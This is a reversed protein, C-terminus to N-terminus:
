HVRGQAEEIRRELAKLQIRSGTFWGEPWGVGQALMRDFIAAQDYRKSGWGALYQLRMNRDRNIQAYDLWHALDAPRGAYTALLEIGSDIGVSALSRRLAPSASLREQLRDVALTDGDRMGVLVLDYGEGNVTNAFIASNPFATMFTGIVSRASEETSEYLQGWATVVGGPKLRDKALRWFEETYLAASGRTWPDLPDSTIGDFLRDTNRLYHRGDEVVLEVRPHRVVGENWPSFWKDAVRTVLPEIEAVTVRGVAEDLALAGATVGAGLGIVLFDDRGEPLLSTLHGLMRQLRMDRPYSSAQVKGSNHYTLAGNPERSVAVSATVGEQAYVVDVGEGWDPLYHGAAIVQAPIPPVASLSVAGFALCLAGAGVVTLRSPAALLVATLAALLSLLVLAQQTVASGFLPVLVLTAGLAGAIAGLTNAAYLRSVPRGPDVTTSTKSDADVLIALALPFSAGWLITAPLMAWASRVLDAPLRLAENVPWYPLDQTVAYAAWAIAPALLAQCLALAYAPTRLRKGLAAGLSTGLGLGFLFVALILAFGYVTAGIFLALQRTWIVQCALATAGSLFLIAGLGLTRPNSVNTSVSNAESASAKGTEDWREGRALWLAVGCVGLNIAVAVATAVQVDHFRLLYFGALVTGLAAGAINGGYFWGLRAMGPRSVAVWRAIAPLTAGMLMTPPLLFLAALVARLAVAGPGPEALGPLGVRLVPLLLLLLVAFVAIGFELLAYVRLPHRNTPVVRPLLVAGFGMGGMFTALLIGLSVASVGIVLGLLQFWVLEYILASCGSGIFLFLLIAVVPRQGLQEKTM